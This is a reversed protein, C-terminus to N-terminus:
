MWGAAYDAGSSKFAASTTRNLTAV